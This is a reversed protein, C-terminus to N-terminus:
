SLRIRPDLYGYSLDVVLNVAIFVATVVTITAQVIPYDRNTIAAVLLQGVGPWSFVTEVIVAGGLLYGLQLGVITIVPILMNPLAHGVIVARRTLGKAHGTRIYDESLVDLLGSRVLRTLVGVLPLALTLAPLVLHAWTDSGASPFLRLSRAFILILMIGLWFSPMAQGLLSVISVVSDVPTRHRVAALIGLPFSLTLALVLATLALEGTVPLRGAVEGMAPVDLRLSMGFDLRLARVLFDLYQVILSRDLGMKERLSAIQDASADAGLIMLAPDGPVVRV